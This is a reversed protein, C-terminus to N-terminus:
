HLAAPRSDFELLAAGVQYWRIAEADDGATRASEIAQWIADNVHDGHVDILAFLTHWAEATAEVAIEGTTM